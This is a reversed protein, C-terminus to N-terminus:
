EMMNSELLCTLLEKSFARYNSRGSGKHPENQKNWAPEWKLKLPDVDKINILQLPFRGKGKGKKKADGKGTPEPYEEVKDDRFIVIRGDKRFLMQSMTRPRVGVFEAFSIGTPPIAKRLRRESIQEDLHGEPFVQVQKFTHSWRSDEAPSLQAHYIELSPMEARGSAKITPMNSPLDSAGRSHWEARGLTSPNLVQGNGTRMQVIANAPIGSTVYLGRPNGMKDVAQSFVTGYQVARFVDFTVTYYRSQLPNHSGEVAAPYRNFPMIYASRTVPGSPVPTGSRGRSGPRKGKGKGKEDDKKGKCKSKPKDQISPAPRAAVAGEELTDDEPDPKDPLQQAGEDQQELFAEALELETVAITALRSEFADHYCM